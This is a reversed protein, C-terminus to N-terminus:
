NSFNTQDWIELLPIKTNRVEALLLEKHSFSCPIEKEMSKYIPSDVDELQFGKYYSNLDVTVISKSQPLM